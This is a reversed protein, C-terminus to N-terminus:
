LQETAALRTHRRCVAMLVLLRWPPALPCPSSQCPTSGEWLVRQCTHPYRWAGMPGDNHAMPHRSPTRREFRCAHCARPWGLFDRTAVARQVALKSTVVVGGDALPHAVSVDQPRRSKCHCSCLSSNCTAIPSQGSGHCQATPRALTVLVSGPPRTLGPPQPHASALSPRM